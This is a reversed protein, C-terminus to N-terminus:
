AGAVALTEGDRHLKEQLLAQMIKDQAEHVESLKYTPRSHYSDPDGEKTDEERVVSRFDDMTHVRVLDALGKVNEFPTPCSCGSDRCVYVARTVLDQFVITTDFSYDANQDDLTALIELGCAAPENSPNPTYDYHEKEDPWAFRRDDSM